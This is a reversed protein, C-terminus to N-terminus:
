ASSTGLHPMQFEAWLPYHDSIRWSLPTKDMGAHTLGVFDFQGARGSYDLTLKARTGETFWAIQDYFHNEDPGQFITRPLDALEPPPSLGRSSFALFTEDEPDEINFDGLTILNQNYEDSTRTAWDALWDAIGRLEPLREAPVKGWVVHLTVLIFTQTGSIFSVAYPSRAFQERLVLPDATEDQGPDVYVVLEGALGSPKVRRTDFVFAMREGNGRDGQNVDTLILGWEPGLMKLMHRLAMLTERAEQIAVVDFHSVIEAIVALSHLDRLPSDGPGSQWKQTLGGFARLNWTAILLNHDLKKSPVAQDAFGQRLRALDQSTAAPVAAPLHLM